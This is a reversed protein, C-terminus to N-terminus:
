EERKNKEGANLELTDNALNNLPGLWEEDPQSILIFGEHDLHLKLGLKSYQQKTLLLTTVTRSNRLVDSSISSIKM